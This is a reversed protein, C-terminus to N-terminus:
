AETYIELEILCTKSCRIEKTDRIQDGFYIQHRLNFSLFVSEFDAFGFGFLISQM